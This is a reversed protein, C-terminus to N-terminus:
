VKLLQTFYMLRRLVARFDCMNVYVCFGKGFRRSVESFDQRYWSSGGYIQEFDTQHRSLYRLIWRVGVRFRSVQCPKM